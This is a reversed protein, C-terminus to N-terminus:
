VADMGTAHAFSGPDQTCGHLMLVLPAPRAPDLHEPVHVRAGDGPLAASPTRGRPVVARAWPRRTAPPSRLLAPAVGARAIAEENAAYLARWDLGDMSRVKTIM